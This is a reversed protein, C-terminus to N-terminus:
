IKSLIWENGFLDRANIEGPMLKSPDLSIEYIPKNSRGIVESEIKITNDIEKLKSKWQFGVTESFPHILDKLFRIFINSFPKYSIQDEFFSQNRVYPIRYAALFFFFLSTKKKGIYDLCAFYDLSSIFYLRNNRDDEIYRNGMLDLNVKWVDEYISKGVMEFKIKFTEGPSLLFFNKLNFDPSLNNVIEREKPISNFKIQIKSESEDQYQTFTIPITSSGVEPTSQFHLHIHPELSRGSNGALGIKTGAQIIDGEKVVISNKQLHSIQSYFYPAHEILVLNGWNNKTDVSGIPNDEIHNIVKIVRGYSPSLVNLGYTYFDGMANENGKRLKGDPGVAMFDLSEKWSDKHTYKGNYGQSVQWKGSFPLRIYAGNDGFRKLRTKFYDLNREPSGPPFDVFIFKPNRLLRAVYIFLLTVTAFPLAFVPVNFQVLFVKTFSSVLASAIASFGALIFTYPSPILFYGGVGISTLIYNFGVNGIAIGDLNGNLFIHFTLGLGFGLVSLLFVIRSSILLIIAICLGSWPSSQFFIGGLSKLYYLIYYPIEPFLNDYPFVYAQKNTLGKYDYFSLYLIISVIVFPLSLVPLGFFYSLIYELSLTVFVLLIIAALLIIILNLDVQHYISVSLGVLLGNFGYLGKRIREEYVGLFLALFNSFLIGLLGTLAAPPNFLTACFILFGLIPSGSFLVTSYASLTSIGVTKLSNKM